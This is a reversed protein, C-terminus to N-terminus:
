LSRLLKGRQTPVFGQNKVLGHSFLWLAAAERGPTLEAESAFHIALVSPGIKIDFIEKPNRANSSARNYANMAREIQPIHKTFDMETASTMRKNYEM